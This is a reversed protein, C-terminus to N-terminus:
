NHTAALPIPCLFPSIHEFCYLKCHKGKNRIVYYSVEYDEFMCTGSEKISKPYNCAYM